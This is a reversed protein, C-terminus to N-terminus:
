IVKNAKIAVPKAKKNAAAAFNLAEINAEAHTAEVKKVRLFSRRLGKAEAAIQAEKLQEFDDTVKTDTKRDFAAFGGTGVSKCTFGDGFELSIRLKMGTLVELAREDEDMMEIITALAPTSPITGSWLQRVGYGFEDGKSNMLYLRENHTKGEANAYTVSVFGDALKTTDVAQVVVDHAGEPLYNSGSGVLITDLNKSEKMTALMAKFQKSYM